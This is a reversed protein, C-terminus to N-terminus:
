RRLDGVLEVTREGVVAVAEHDDVQGIRVHDTVRARNGRGHLGDLGGVRCKAVDEVGDLARVDGFRKRLGETVVASKIEAM